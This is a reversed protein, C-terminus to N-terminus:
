PADGSTEPSGPLDVDNTADLDLPLPGKRPEDPAHLDWDSHYHLFDALEAESNEFRPSIRGSLTVAFVSLGRKTLTLGSLNEIGMVHFRDANEVQPDWEDLAAVIRYAIAYAGMGYAADTGLARSATTPLSAVAYVAWQQEFTVGQDTARAVIPVFYAGPPKIQSVQDTGEDFPFEISEIQRLARREDDWGFATKLRAEIAKQVAGLPDIAPDIM